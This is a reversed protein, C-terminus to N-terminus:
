KLPEVIWEDFEVYNKNVSMKYAVSNIYPVCSTVVSEIDGREICDLIEDNTLREIYINNRIYLYSLYDSSLYQYLCQSWKSM